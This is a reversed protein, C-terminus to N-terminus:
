GKKKRRKKKRNEWKEGGRGALGVQQGARIVHGDFHPVPVGGPLALLYVVSSHRYKCLAEPACWVMRQLKYGGRGGRGGGRRRLDKLAVGVVHHLHHEVGLVCVRKGRARKVMLDLHPLQARRRGVKGQRTM